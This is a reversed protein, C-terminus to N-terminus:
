FIPIPSTEHKRLKEESETPRLDTQRDSHVAKGLNDKGWKILHKIRCKSLAKRILEPTLTATSAAIALVQRTLSNGNSSAGMLRKGKGILSELVESSGPLKGHVQAASTCMPEVRELIREVLIKSEPHIPQGLESRLVNMTAWGYGEQRIVSNARQAIATLELWVSIADRYQELWGLKEQVLDLPLREIQRENLNGARVRDLIALARAGWRIEPDVNMYRAKTKPRPPKLHALKSQRIANACHCCSKRYENWREDATLIKEILLSILHVIDYLGLVSSHKQQLLEVGKKLDSGHDSVVALPVGCRETVESLQECVIAGDSREVPILALVDFDRHELPRSLRLYDSHRIGLVILCKTTGAAITHDVLLIWDNHKRDQCQLQYLGIRLLFNQVTTHSPEGHLPRGAIAAVLACVRSAARM